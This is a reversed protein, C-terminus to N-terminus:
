LMVGAERVSLGVAELVERLTLVQNSLTIVEQELVANRAEAEALKAEVQKRSLRESEVAGELMTIREADTWTDIM